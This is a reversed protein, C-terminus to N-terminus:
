PAGPLAYGPVTERLIEDIRKREQPKLHAAVAPSADAQLAERLRSFVAAKVREPLAAFAKSHVMFSCRHKFLRDNLNFDALSHGAATKPFRATFAEQFAPDGDIGGDGLPAEDKFLLADVIGRAAHDAQQGAAGTAPDAQPNLAQQL